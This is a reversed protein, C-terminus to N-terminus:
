SSLQEHRARGPARSDLFVRRGPGQKKEIGTTFVIVGEHAHYSCFLERNQSLRPDASTTYHQM